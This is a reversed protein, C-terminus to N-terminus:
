VKSRCRRFLSGHKSHRGTKGSCETGASSRMGLRMKLIDGRLEGIANSVKPPHNHMTETQQHILGNQIYSVTGLIIVFLLLLGFGLRLQSSIKLNKLNM